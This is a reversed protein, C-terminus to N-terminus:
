YLRRRFVPREEDDGHAVLPMGLEAAIDRWEGQFDARPHHPLSIGLTYFYVHLMEGGWAIAMMDAPTAPEHPMPTMGEPIRFFQPNLVIEYHNIRTHNAAAVLTAMGPQPARGIGPETFDEVITLEFDNEIFYAILQQGRRTEAFQVLGDRTADQTNARQSRTFRPVLNEDFPIREGALMLAGAGAAYLPLSGALLFLAIALRRM